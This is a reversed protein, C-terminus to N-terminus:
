NKIRILAGIEVAYQVLATKNFPIQWFVMPRAFIIAPHNTANISYSFGFSVSPMFHPNGANSAKHVQGAADVYYADGGNLFTHLYGVGLYHEFFLNKYVRFRQGSQLMLFLGTNNRYHFYAGAKTNLMLEYRDGSLLPREYNFTFGPYLGGTSFYGIGFRDVNKVGTQSQAQYCTLFLGMLLLITSSTYKNKMM